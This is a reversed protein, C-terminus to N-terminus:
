WTGPSSPATGQRPIRCVAGDEDGDAEVTSAITGVPGGTVRARLRAPGAVISAAIWHEIRGKFVRGIDVGGVGGGEEKRERGREEVVGRRKEVGGFSQPQLSSGESGIDADV